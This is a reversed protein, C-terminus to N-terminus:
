VPRNSPAVPVMTLVKRATISPGGGGEPLPLKPLKVPVNSPVIFNAWHIENPQSRFDLLPACRTKARSPTAERHAIVLIAGVPPHWEETTRNVRQPKRPNKGRLFSKNQITEFSSENKKRTLSKTDICQAVM